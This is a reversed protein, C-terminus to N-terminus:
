AVGVRDSRILNPVVKRLREESMAGVRMLRPVEGTADVITSPVLDASPGAALYVSMLYGLREQAETATAATPEGTRNASSVAMPGTEKLVELAVPHLPMRLAVTGQTDGLDWQLSPAYRVIITM